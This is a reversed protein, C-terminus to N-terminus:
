EEEKIKEKEEVIEDNQINKSNEVSETEINKIEDQLNEKKVPKEKEKSNKNEKKVPKEKKIAGMASITPTVGFMGIRTSM